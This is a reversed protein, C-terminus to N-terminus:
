EDMRTHKRAGVPLIPDDVADGFHDARSVQSVGRDASCMTVIKLTGPVQRDDLSQRSVADMLTVLFM